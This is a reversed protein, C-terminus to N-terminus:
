SGPLRLAPLLVGPLETLPRPAPLAPLPPGALSLLWPKGPDGTVIALLAPRNESGHGIGPAIVAPDPLALQAVVKRTSTDYTPLSATRGPVAVTSGVLLPGASPRYGVDQKWALTGNSRGFARLLNDMSVAYVRSADAEARGRVAAGIPFRWAEGGTDARLCVFDRGAAGLYVRDGYVFPETPNAGVEHEWKVTGTTLELAVVRGDAVPVYLTDGDIAPRQDVLAITRTWVVAGDSDRRATLRDGAAIIAWGGRLLLPATIRGTEASWRTEGSDHALAQVASEVPILVLDGDGALDRTAAFTATWLPAGDAVSHALVQGSQLALVVRDGLVLPPAAPASPVEKSWIISTPFVVADNRAHPRAVLLAAILAAVAVTPAFFRCSITTRGRHV